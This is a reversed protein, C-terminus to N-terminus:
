SAKRINYSSIDWPDFGELVYNRSTIERLVAVVAHVMEMPATNVFLGSAQKMIDRLVKENGEKAVKIFMEMKGEINGDSGAGIKGLGYALAPIGVCMHIADIVAVPANEFFLSMYAGHTIRTPMEKARQFFGM